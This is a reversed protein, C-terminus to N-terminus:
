RRRWRSIPWNSRSWSSTARRVDSTPRRVKVRSSRSRTAALRRRDSRRRRGAAQVQGATPDGAGPLPGPSGDFQALAIRQGGVRDGVGEVLGAAQGDAALHAVAPPASGVSGSRGPRRRAFVSRELVQLFDEVDEGIVALVFEAPQDLFEARGFGIERGQFLPLVFQLLLDLGARLVLVLLSARRSNCRSPARGAAIARPSPVARAAVRAIAPRAPRRLGGRQGRLLHVLGVLPCPLPIAGGGAALGGLGLLRQGLGAALKGVLEALGGGLQGVLLDGPQVIVDLVEAALLLVGQVFGLPEAPEFLRLALERPRLGERDM